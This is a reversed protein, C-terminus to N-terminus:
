GRLPLTVTFTTLGDVSEARIDGGHAGVIERAIALGLGAGGSATSRATDLRYFKEFISELKHPPITRGRNKFTVVATDGVEKAEIAIVTDPDSYAVANKLVNNFVRALKDADGELDISGDTKLEARKNQATFLPYFEDVLQMLMYSLHIREKELVVTQLNFRTIDFFENILQELRCAKDLTIRTYKARQELPMDPAEELINLYGIVSTLPTKIDHALYVVLDNKRQEAERADRTRKELSQRVQNLKKAMVDLEEPLEIDTDREEALADIGRSIEEFYRTFRTMGWYFIVCLLLVYGAAMWLTKNSQFIGRYLMEAREGSTFQAFLYVVYDAFRDQLVGDVFLAMLVWGALLAILATLVVQVLIKRKLRKFSNDM